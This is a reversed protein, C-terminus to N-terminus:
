SAWRWLLWESGRRCWWHLKRGKVLLHTVKEPALKKHRSREPIKRGPHLKTLRGPTPIWHWLLNYCMSPAQLAINFHLTPIWHWLLPAESEPCSLPLKVAVGGYWSSALWGSWCLMWFFPISLLNVSTGMLKNPSQHVCKRPTSDTSPRLFWNLALIIFCHELTATMFKIIFSRLSQQFWWRVWHGCYIRSISPCIFILSLIGRHM